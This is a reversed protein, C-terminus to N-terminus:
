AIEPTQAGASMRRSESRMRSKAFCLKTFNPFKKSFKFIFVFVFYTYFHVCNQNQGGILPRFSNIEDIKANNICFLCLAEQICFAMQSTLTQFSVGDWLVISSQFPLLITKFFKKFVEAKM